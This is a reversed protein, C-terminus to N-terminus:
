AVKAARNGRVPRKRKQASRIRSRGQDFNDSVAQMKKQLREIAEDIEQDAPQSTIM